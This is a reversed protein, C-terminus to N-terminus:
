LYVSGSFESSHTFGTKKNKKEQPKPRTATGIKRNGRASFQELYIVAKGTVSTKRECGSARWGLM